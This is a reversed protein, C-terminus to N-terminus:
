YRIIANIVVTKKLYCRLLYSWAGSPTLGDVELQEDNRSGVDSSGKRCIEVEVNRLQLTIRMWEPVQLANDDQSVAETQHLMSDGLQVGVSSM